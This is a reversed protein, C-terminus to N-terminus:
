LTELASLVKRAASDWTFRRARRYGADRLSERLEIDQDLRVMASGIAFADEPDVQLGAQGVLEPLSSTSSAIVPLGCHMAEVVPFGFGEYLSPFVLGLALRYLDGKDEEDIYGTLHIGPIGATWREDYRWGKGGALVLAAPNNVRERYSQYARVLREINKRPQLTGIFLFFRRPLDYKHVVDNYHAPPADVGPYIVRIKKTDTGYFDALDQATALSDAFVLAARQASYRTTIDLYFRQMVTHADPFHKYGLDHVTVIGNGPFLVPLTHAPVFLVDPRASWIASALRIHTWMRPFRIVRQTTHENAPLLDDSPKDRFYLTLKHHTNQRILARILELAYRETGTVRSATTRSADIAIRLSERPM